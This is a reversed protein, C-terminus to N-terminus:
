LESTYAPRHADLSPRPRHGRHRSSRRSPRASSSRASHLLEQALKVLLLGGTRSSVRDGPFHTNTPLKVYYVNDLTSEPIISTEKATLSIGQACPEPRQGARGQAM